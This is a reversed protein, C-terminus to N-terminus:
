AGGTSAPSSASSSSPSLGTVSSASSPPSKKEPFAEAVMARIATIASMEQEPTQLYEALDEPEAFEHERDVLAAWLLASVVYLRRRGNALGAFSAPRPLSANRAMARQTWRVARPRDLTILIPESM